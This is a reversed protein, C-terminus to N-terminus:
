REVQVIRYGAASVADALFEAYWHPWEEDYVGGLEEAEHVGHAAATAVLLRELLEARATRDLAAPEAPTSATM